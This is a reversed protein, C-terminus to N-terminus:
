PDASRTELEKDLATERMQVCSTVIMDLVAAIKSYDYGDVPARQDLFAKKYSDKGILEGQYGDIKSNFSSWRVCPQGDLDLYCEISAGRGNIDARHTGNPGMTEFDQFAQLDPLKLVRMNAPVNLERTRTFNVVGEADNDYIIITNNQVGISILGQVFKFLNGTGSFPYGEEMDVFQFFDEIHPKLLRFAQRIINADSSGETVILFRNSPDLPRVFEGRKAWGGEEVDMFQWTVPVKKLAPNGALLLLITYASLNEMGYAVEFKVGHSDDVIAALGLRDAIYRRFFKGFDEGGHGYDASVADVDVTELATRLQDFSFLSSDFDNLESLYAFEKECHAFTHGLLAIRDVVEGLPKSLGDKYETILKWQDNGAADKYSTGEVYYYPVKALDTIQYLASHDTFGQNKGCDIELRGIALQIMSGM